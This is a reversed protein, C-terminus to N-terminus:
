EGGGSGRNPDVFTIPNIGADYMETWLRLADEDTLCLGKADILGLSTGGPRIKIDIMCLGRAKAAKRRAAPSTPKSM